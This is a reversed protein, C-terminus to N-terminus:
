DHIWVTSRLPLLNQGWILDMVPNIVRICGHSAPYNPVNSAGHVAVGGVVFKPRYLTGLDGEYRAVDHERYTKFDGLPTVAVGIVRRGANKQDEEDYSQGNGTSVNFVWLVKGGRVVMGIQKSRNVEFYDGSARGATPRCMTQNLADATAQDVRGSKAPLDAWKQFAMVAQTTITGYNGDPNSVWFGLDSLRQQVRIVSPASSGTVVVDVPSTPFGVCGTPVSNVNTQAAQLGNAAGGLFYGSVDAIVQGGRESFVEFGRASVPVIAHNALTQAAHTANLTSTPRTAGPTNAGATTVSFYGAALTENITVNLVVASVDSRAIMPNSAVPVEVAWTPLLRVGPGLPDPSSRTDLFRTPTALPVFLGDTSSPASAATYTGVVDVILDGGATTFVDIDGNADVPVIVQNAAVSGTAVSNLNSTAPIASGTPFVQWYGGQWAITTVNLAVASAGIADPIHITRQEGPALGSRDPRTDVRRAPTALPQFRGESASSAPTYYGLLDVILQGGADSYLSVKGDTGVPVTVL